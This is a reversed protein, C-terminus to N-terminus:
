GAPIYDVILPDREAAQVTKWCTVVSRETVTKGLRRSFDIAVAAIIQRRVAYPQTIRLTGQRPPMRNLPTGTTARLMSKIEKPYERGAETKLWGRRDEVPIADAEARLADLEAGVLRTEIAAIERASWAEGMLRVCEDGIDCRESPTLASRRGSGPRKGGRPM